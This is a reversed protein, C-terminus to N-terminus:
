KKQIGTDMLVDMRAKTNSKDHYIGDLRHSM